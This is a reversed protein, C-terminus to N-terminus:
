PEERRQHLAPQEKQDANLTGIYGPQVQFALEGLLVSDGLLEGGLEGIRRETLVKGILKPAADHPVVSLFRVAPELHYSRRAKKLMVMQEHMEVNGSDMWAELTSQAIFMRDHLVAMPSESGEELGVTYPEGRAPSLDM